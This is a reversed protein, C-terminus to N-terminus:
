NEVLRQYTNGDEGTYSECSYKGKSSNAYCYTCNERNANCRSLQSNDAARFGTGTVGSTNPDISTSWYDYTGDDYHKYEFNTMAECNKGQSDCGVRQAIPYGKSDNEAFFYRCDTGEKDKCLTAVVLGGNADHYLDMKQYTFGVATPPDFRKSGTGRGSVYIPGSIKCNTCNSCIPTLMSSYLGSNRPEECEPLDLEGDIYKEWDAKPRNAVEQGSTKKNLYDYVKKLKIKEAADTAVAIDSVRFSGNDDFQSSLGFTTEDTTDTVLVGNKINDKDFSVIPNEIDSINWYLGDPARFVCSTDESLKETIKFYAASNSCDEGAWESLAQDSKIQNEVVMKTMALDYVSMAKHLKTRKQSKMQRNILSPMTLAAIIGLVVLVIMTEALTFASKKGFNQNPILDNGCHPKLIVEGGCTKDWLLKLTNTNKM